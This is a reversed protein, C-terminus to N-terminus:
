DVFPPLQNIFKQSLGKVWVYEVDVTSPNGTRSQGISGFVLACIILPFVPILPEPRDFVGCLVICIVMLLLCGWGLRLWRRRWVFHKECFPVQLIAKGNM